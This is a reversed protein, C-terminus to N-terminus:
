PMKVYTLVMVTILVSAIFYWLIEGVFKIMWQPIKCSLSRIIMWIRIGEGKTNPIIRYHTCM